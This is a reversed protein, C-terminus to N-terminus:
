VVAVRSSDRTQENQHGVVGTEHDTNARDVRYLREDTRSPM